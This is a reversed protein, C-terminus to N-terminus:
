ALCVPLGEVQSMASIVPVNWASDADPPRTPGAPVELTTVFIMKTLYCRPHWCRRRGPYRDGTRRRRKALVNMSFEAKGPSPVNNELSDDHIFWPRSAHM